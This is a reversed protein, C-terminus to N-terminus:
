KNYKKVCFGLERLKILLTGDQMMQKLCDKNQEDQKNESKMQFLCLVVSLVLLIGSLGLLCGGLIRFESIFGLAIGALSSIKAFFLAILALKNKISIQEFM